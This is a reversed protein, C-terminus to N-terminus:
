QDAIGEQMEEAVQEWLWVLDLHIPTGALELRDAALWDNEHAGWTFAHRKEPDILWINEVGMRSFDEARERLESLRDDPSLIEVAILPPDEQPKGLLPRRRIVTVDPLRFNSTTVRTRLEPLSMIKWEKRHLAFWHGIMGQVFAHIDTPMPRERLQGDILEPDHEYSTRLYEAVSIAHATEM